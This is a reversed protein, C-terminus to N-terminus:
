VLMRPTEKRQGSRGCVDVAAANVVPAADSDHLGTLLSTSVCPSSTFCPPLCQGGPGDALDGPRLRGTKGKGSGETGGVDRRFRGEFPFLVFCFFSLICCFVGFIVLVCYSFVIVICMFVVVITVWAAAVCCAMVSASKRGSEIEWGRWSFGVVAADSGCGDCCNRKGLHKVRTNM